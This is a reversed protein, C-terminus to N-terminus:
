RRASRQAKAREYDGSTDIDFAGAEFEISMVEGVRAEIIGKAGSDDPL